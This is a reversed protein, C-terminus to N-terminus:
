EDCLVLGCITPGLSTFTPCGAKIKGKEHTVFSNVKLADLKLKAKKM